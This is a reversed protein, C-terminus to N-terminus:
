NRSKVPVWPKTGKEIKSQIGKPLENLQVAITHYQDAERMRIGNWIQLYAKGDKVGLFSVNHVSEQVGLKKAVEIFETPSVDKHNSCGIIYITVLLLPLILLKNMSNAGTVLTQTLKVARQDLVM